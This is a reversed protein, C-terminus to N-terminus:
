HLRRHRVPRDLATELETAFLLKLYNKNLLIMRVSSCMVIIIKLTETYALCVYSPLDM